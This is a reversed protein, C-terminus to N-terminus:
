ENDSQRKDMFCDVSLIQTATSEKVDGTGSFFKVLEEPFDFNFSQTLSILQLHNVLIKLYISTVNKEEKAGNLTSRIM